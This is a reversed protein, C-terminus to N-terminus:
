NKRRQLKIISEWISSIATHRFKASCKFLWSEILPELCQRHKGHVRKFWEVDMFLKQAVWKSFIFSHLVPANRYYNNYHGGMLICAYIRGGGFFFRGIFQLQTYVGSCVCSLNNYIWTLAASVWLHKWQEVSM